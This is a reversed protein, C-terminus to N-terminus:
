PVMAFNVDTSIKKLKICEAFVLRLKACFEAYVQMHVVTKM